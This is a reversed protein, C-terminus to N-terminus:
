KIKAGKTGFRRINIQVKVQVPIRSFQEDWDKKVEQWVKPYKISLQKGFGAVDVKFEKQTKRLAKNVVLKIEDEVAKKVRQMFEEEFANGYMTWDEGLRGESEIKVTFSIEGGNVEPKISSKLNFLEYVILEKTQEDVAEVIGGEAKGTLWNLGDIEEEGLWGILNNIKGKIVAAGALKVSNGHVVVRPMLFSSEAAMKESMEGLTLKPAMRSTKHMNRMLMSLKQAPLDEKTPEVELVARASGKAIVVNVKRRIEHDRIFLNLLKQMNISRAVDESIVLVELHEYFPPRSSVTSNERIIQFITDGESSVNSYPKKESSGGKGQGGIVKPVVFQHTLTLRHRKGYKHEIAEKKEKEVAETQKPKDIAVGIVIGLNEIEHRDWCGTIMILSISFLLVFVSEAKIKKKKM